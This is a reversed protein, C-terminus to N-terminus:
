RTSARNNILAGRRSFPVDVLRVLSSALRPESKMTKAAGSDTNLTSDAQSEAISGSQVSWATRGPWPRENPGASLDNQARDSSCTPSAEASPM